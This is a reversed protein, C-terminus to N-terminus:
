HPAGHNHTLALTVTEAMAADRGAAAYAVEYDAAPLQIRLHRDCETRFATTTALPPQAQPGFGAPHDAFHGVVSGAGGCWRHSEGPM